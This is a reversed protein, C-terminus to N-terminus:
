LKSSPKEWAAKLTKEMANEPSDLRAQTAKFLSPLGTEEFPIGEAVMQALGKSASLIQPMGHGSFGACIFQNPSRPIEGIHPLLDSSYGMVTTKNVDNLNGVM